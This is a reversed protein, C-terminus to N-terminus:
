VTQVVSKLGPRVKPFLSWFHSVQSSDMVLIKRTVVRRLLVMTLRTQKVQKRSVIAFFMMFLM